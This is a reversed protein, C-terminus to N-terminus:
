LQLLSQRVHQMCLIHVIHGCFSMCVFTTPLSYVRQSRVYGNAITDKINPYKTILCQCLADYDASTPYETHALLRYAIVEIIEITQGKTLM